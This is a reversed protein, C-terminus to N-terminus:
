GSFLNIHVSVPVMVLVSVSSDGSSYSITQVIREIGRLWLNRMQSILSIGAM